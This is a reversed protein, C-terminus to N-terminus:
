LSLYLTALLVVVSCFMCSYSSSDPQSTHNRHGRPVTAEETMLPFVTLTTTTLPKWTPCTAALWSNMISPAHKEIQNKMRPDVLFRNLDTKLMAPIIENYLRNAPGGWDAQTDSVTDAITVFDFQDRMPSWGPNGYKAFNTWAQGLNNAVELDSQKIRGETEAREWEYSYFWLFCLESCHYSPRWDGIPYSNACFSNFYDFDYLFVINSNNNNKFWQLEKRAPAYYDKDTIARSILKTWALHDDKNPAGNPTYFSLVAKKILAFQDKSQGGFKEKLYKEMMSEGVTSINGDLIENMSFVFEDTTDGLMVVYNPRIRALEAIPAIPFIVGDLSMSYSKGANDAKIMEEGPIDSFCEQLLPISDHMSSSSLTLNCLKEAHEVEPTTDNDFFDPTALADAIHAGASHGFITIRNPDGGFNAIENNTWRLALLVDFIGRNAPFEPTYTTFFGITSIRYQIVVVVVDRSALNRVAGKYHYIDAGGLVYVGGPIYFMVARKRGDTINPTIVNLYLCDESTIYDFGHYDHSQPCRPKYETSGVDGEFRCLAQPLKFRLEGLPAKAFPIGLFVSASGYYLRSKDSGYDVQFGRVPGASTQATVTLEPSADQAALSQILFFLFLLLLM